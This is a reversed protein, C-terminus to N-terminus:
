DNESWFEKVITEYREPELFYSMCHGAGPVILLKKPSHCAKYNEFTMEVPVFRDDTGHIFLVPINTQSLANTTSFAAADMQTKRRYMTNAMAGRLRFRMHLNNTAVHKWIAHPSTFGCDGVIGRVNGPMPLDSAMLVTSAGMSVGWLYIPIESGCRGTVWNVWDLCDYREIPGFGIYDGGSEGQGRQDAYLVSCGSNEWFDRILGFDHGWSSRWGHMAIIVRRANEQPIWHGVLHVGDHSVIEVAENEAKELAEAAEQRARSFASNAKVGSVKAHKPGMNPKERDLAMKVMGKTTVYASLSAASAACAAVATYKLAKKLKRNM